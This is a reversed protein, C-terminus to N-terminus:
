TTGESPAPDESPLVRDAPDWGGGLARYLQVLSSVQAGESQALSDQNATLERQSDLLNQFDVMGNEYLVKVLEVSRGAADVARMLAERRQGERRYLVLADEVEGLALLVTAQYRSAADALTQDAFDISGQVQGGNFVNWNMSPGVWWSRSSADALTGSSNSVHRYSGSLSFAPYAGTEALGVRATQAALVREARRVDPRQSLLTAPAGVLVSEPPSPIPAHPLLQAMLASPHEGLLVGLRHISVAVAGELSPISAETVALNREAQAVDLGPVLGADFRAQTLELTSAQDEVNRQAYDLRRQFARLAVYTDAVEALLLVLVDRYDEISAELDAEAAEINRRVRGFVDIEWTADLGGSVLDNTSGNGGFTNQSIRARSADAGVFLTPVRDGAAVSFLARAALVRHYAGQLGPNAAHARAVLDDLTPDGLVTWWVQLPAQGAALGSQLESHWASPLSPEPPTYDPGVAQCACLLALLGARGCRLLSPVSM